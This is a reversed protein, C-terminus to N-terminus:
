WRLTSARANLRTLSRPDEHSDARSCRPWSLVHRRQSGRSESWVGSSWGRYGYARRSRLKSLAQPGLVLVVPASEARDTEGGSGETVQIM